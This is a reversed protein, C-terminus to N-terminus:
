ELGKLMEKACEVAKEIDHEDTHVTFSLEGRVRGIDARINPKIIVQWSYETESEGYAMMVNERAIAKKFGINDIRFKKNKM